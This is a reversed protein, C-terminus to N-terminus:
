CGQEGNAKNTFAARFVVVMVIIRDTKNRATAAWASSREEEAADKDDTESM